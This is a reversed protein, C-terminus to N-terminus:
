IDEQFMVPKTSAISVIIHFLAQMPQLVAAVEPILQKEMIYAAFLMLHYGAM